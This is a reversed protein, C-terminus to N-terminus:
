ADVTDLREIKRQMEEAGTRRIEALHPATISEYITLAETWLERARDPNGGLAWASGLCDLVHAEGPRHDMAQFLDRAAGFSQVAEEGRAERHLSVGLNTLSMAALGHNEEDMALRAARTFAEGAEEFRDQRLYLNGLNYLANAEEVSADAAGSDRVVARLQDEAEDFRGASTAFAGALLGLQRAKAPPLIDSDLDSHLQEEIEEPPVAFDVHVITGEVDGDPALPPSGDDVVVVKARDVEIYHALARLCWGFADRDVIDSPEHVLVFSGAEEPLADGVASLSEATRRAMVEPELYEVRGQESTQVLPRAAPIEIGLEALDEEYTEVNTSVRDVVADFYSEYGQFPADLYLMSHTTAPDDEIRALVRQVLQILDGPRHLLLVRFPPVDMFVQIRAIRLAFPDRLPM